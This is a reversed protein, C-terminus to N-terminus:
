EFLIPTPCMLRFATGEKEPFLFSDQIMDNESMTPDCIYRLTIGQEFEQEYVSPMDNFFSVPYPSTTSYFYSDKSGPFRIRYGWHLIMNKNVSGLEFHFMQMSLHDWEVHFEKKSYTYITESANWIKYLLTHKMRHFSMPNQCCDPEETMIDPNQSHLNNNIGRIISETLVEETKVYKDICMALRMSGAFNPNNFMESCNRLFPALKFMLGQSLLVGAGGQAFPLCSDRQGSFHMVSDWSCYVHGYLAIEEHNEDSLFDLISYPYLYTDDDSWIYWKKNPYKNYLDLMSILHRNQAYYWRHEWETGVLFDSENGIENFRVYSHKLSKIVTEKSGAFYEDSYVDIEPVLQVWTSVQSVVRRTTYERGSWIGWATENFLLFLVLLLL